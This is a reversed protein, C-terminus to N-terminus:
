KYKRGFFLAAKKGFVRIQYRVLKERSGSSPKYAKEQRKVQMSEIM